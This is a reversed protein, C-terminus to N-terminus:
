PVFSGDMFFAKLFHHSIGYVLYESFLSAIKGSKISLILLLRSSFLESRIAAILSCIIGSWCSSKAIALIFFEPSSSPISVLLSRQGMGAAKTLEAKPVLSPIAAQLAPKHFTECIARVAVMIDAIIMVYKRAYRDIWVGAFLGIIGLSTYL